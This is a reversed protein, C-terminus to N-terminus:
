MLSGTVAAAQLGSIIPCDVGSIGQNSKTPRLLSYSRALRLPQGGCDPLRGHAQPHQSKMPGNSRHFDRVTDHHVM